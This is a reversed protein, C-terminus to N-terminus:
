EVFTIAIGRKDARGTRGIRHIYTEYSEPLDYNIVHTINNIDLGRAVVDTAVLTQLKNQKFERLIRQRQGQSKNGHIAGVQLGREQLKRSLNETGHKTRGFVLVKSFDKKRLLNDLVDIKAQGSIKVLEQKVNASTDQSKVTIYVPNSLFNKMIEKVRDTMTASFFLSQRDKPLFSIITKIERVFGMDLMRDVEDLVINPFENFRLKKRQNLDKIRGPTGIVFQPKRSLDSIQRNISAGGICLASFVRLNYSFSNLEDRVQIALERTPVIILVREQRYNLVKNILPILFAATKGTGTNAIGVVDRGSLIHNISQDQIPTPTLYGRELINNKLEQSIKFDSFKYKAQYDEVKLQPRQVQESQLVVATPDFVAQKRGSSRRKNSFNKRSHYKHQYNNRRGSGRARNNSYPMISGEKYIFNALSLFCFTLPFNKFFTAHKFWTSHIIKLCRLTLTVNIQGITM